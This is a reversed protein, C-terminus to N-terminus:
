NCDAAISLALVQQTEDCWGIVIHDLVDIGILNGANKLRDTVAIDAPSPTVNGSPHNHCIIIVSASQAIAYRFVERPHVLSSDLTGKTIISYGIPKYKTDLAICVLNEQLDQAIEGLVERCFNKADDSGRIQKVTNFYSTSERVVSVKYRSIRHAM